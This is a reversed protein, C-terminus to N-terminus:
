VGVHWVGNQADYVIGVSAYQALTYPTAGPCLLPRGTTVGGAGGSENHNIVLDSAYNSLVVRRGHIGANMTNLRAGASAAIKLQRPKRFWLGVNDGIEGAPAYNDILGFLATAPEISVLCDSKAHAIVHWDSDSNPDGLPSIVWACQGPLLGFDVGGPCFFQRGPTSADNLHAITLVGNGVNLRLKVGGLTAVNANAGGNPSLGTLYTEGAATNVRILSYEEFTLDGGALGGGGLYSTQAIPNYNNVTGPGVM